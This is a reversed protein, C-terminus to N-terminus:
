LREGREQGQMLGSGLATHLRPWDFAPGPDTKRDPAIDAHGVIRDETIAPFRNMLASCCEALVAYQSDTYPTTDSGELEIGVSFDNCHERSGFRSRGAHWARRDVSVFQVLEGCRRIFLHASVKLHAITQFYAHRRPDLRNCFFHEVEDGGYQDPPLSINHIVLLDMGAGSPRENANPSVVPRARTFWGCADIIM